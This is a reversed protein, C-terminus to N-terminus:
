TSGGPLRPTAVPQSATRKPTAELDCSPPEPVRSGGDRARQSGHGDAGRLLTLSQTNRRFRAPKQPPALQVTTGFGGVLGFPQLRLCTICFVNWSTCYTPADFLTSVGCTTYNSHGRKGTGSLADRVPAPSIAPGGLLRIFSFFRAGFTDTSLYYMIVAQCRKVSSGPWIGSDLNNRKGWNTLGGIRLSQLYETRIFM